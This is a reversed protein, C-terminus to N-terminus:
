LPWLQALSEGFFLAALGGGALYPGFPIPVERRHGKFVVLAIGVTAGVASALLVVSPLAKWGLLAGLGALMKFDGEAMGPVGRLAQYLASLTWLSGYGVLVGAVADSLPVRTWTALSGLLGLAILPLTLGDPLLTTDLDILAMALLLAVVACWLLTTPQAGFAWGCAAFLAGSAAEVIPYRPSIRTGCSSCRGRLLLWGLVPLNEHWHLVHGCSPCRSRPRVLTLPGLRSLADGIARAAPDFTTAPRAQKGFVPTWALADALQFDATERWWDRLLMQPLRHVVVNLFSGVCLGLVALGAPTLFWDM